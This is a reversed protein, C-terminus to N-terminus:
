DNNVKLKGSMIQELVSEANSKDDKKDEAYDDKFRNKMIFQWPAGGFNKFEGKIGSEGIKEWYVQSAALGREVADYFDPFNEAYKYFSTRGIGLAVCVAAISKGQSLEELAVKAMEPKYQM